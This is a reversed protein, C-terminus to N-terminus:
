NIEVPSEIAPDEKIAKAMERAVNLPMTGGTHSTVEPSNMITFLALSLKNAEADDLRQIVRPQRTHQDSLILTRARNLVGAAMQLAQAGARSGQGGQQQSSDTGNLDNWDALSIGATVRFSRLPRNFPITVSEAEDFEEEVVLPM